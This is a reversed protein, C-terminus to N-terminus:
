RAVSRARCGNDLTDSGSGHVGGINTKSSDLSRDSTSLFGSWEAVFLERCM